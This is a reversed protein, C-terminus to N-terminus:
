VQEDEAGAPTDGWFQDENTFKHSWRLGKVILSIAQKSVGYDSALIKQREGNGVRTRIDMIDKKTLKAQGNNEGRTYHQRGCEIKYNNNGIPTDLYLHNPNCCGRNNCTHCVCLPEPIEGNAYEYALRHAKVVKTDRGMVGYEYRDKAGQWEWCDEEDKIDVKCWFREKHNKKWSM